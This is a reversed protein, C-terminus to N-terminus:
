GKQGPAAGNQLAVLEDLPIHCRIHQGGGADVFPPEDTECIAGIKRPCRTHFRCGTPLNVPSPIDAELRIHERHAAPDPLPVASVLAETYPHMPPQFLLDRPGIEMMQGLYMVAIIDAIYSVVALDHSIFVYSAENESKLETLLNLIAAQVSVDLASVSEDLIVLEPDSAFARAIAVRQKEGGSLQAPFRSAYDEGLHVARLLADVRADVQDDPVKALLKLPRRLAEGVTQYPNLSEEPNQFVMQLRKLTPAARDRVDPALEAPILTIEGSSRKILGVITRALTTKGSGSEGVLGITQGRGLMLSIGDVARVAQQPQGRIVDWVSRSLPYRKTVDRVDLLPLAPM